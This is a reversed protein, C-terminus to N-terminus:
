ACRKTSARFSSCCESAAPRLSTRAEGGEPGYFIVWIAFDESFDQFRHEVGAPVFLLDGPGFPTRLGGNTFHGSGSIVV